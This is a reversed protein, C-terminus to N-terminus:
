ESADAQPHRALWLLHSLQSLQETTLHGLQKGHLENLPRDIRKLLAKGIKTLNVWIVRRDNECRTKTVLGRAELREILRPMDSQRTIMEDGIQYVSVPTSHGRLIRLVNYQPSTLEYEKFFQHYRTTLVVYSRALNLYAEEERREFPAKKGIEAALGTQHPHKNAM